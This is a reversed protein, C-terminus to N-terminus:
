ILIGNCLASSASRKFLISCFRLTHLCVAAVILALLLASSYFHIFVVLVSKVATARSLNRKDILSNAGM